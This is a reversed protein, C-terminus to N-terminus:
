TLKGSPLSEVTARGLVLCIKGLFPPHQTSVDVEDGPHNQALNGQELCEMGTRSSNIMNDHLEKHQVEQQSIDLSWCTIYIYIYCIMNYTHTYKIYVYNYYINRNRVIVKTLPASLGTGNKAVPGDRYYGLGVVEHCTRTVVDLRTKMRLHRM